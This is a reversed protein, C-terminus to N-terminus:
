TINKYQSIWSVTWYEPKM